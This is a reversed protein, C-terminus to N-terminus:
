SFISKKKFGQFLKGFKEWVSMSLIKFFIWRHGGTQGEYRERQSNLNNIKM